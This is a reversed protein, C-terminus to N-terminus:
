EALTSVVKGLARIVSRPVEVGLEASERAKERLAEIEKVSLARFLGVSWYGSAGSVKVKHIEGNNGKAGGTVRYLQGERLEGYQTRAKGEGDSGLTAVVVTGNEM